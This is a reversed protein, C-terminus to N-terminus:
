TSRTQFRQKDQLYIDLILLIWVKDHTGLWVYKIEIVKDNDMFTGPNNSPYHMLTKILM